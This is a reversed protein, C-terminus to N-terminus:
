SSFKGLVKAAEEIVGNHGTELIKFSPQTVKGILLNMDKAKIVKDYKGVLLTLKIHHFNILDAVDTMSFRLHRFVMWSLYVRQRKEFTNMQLDVFRLMGKDIWGTKSVFTEIAKLRQPHSIMSKFLMRFLGPYTALKYWFNIKIGDPAILLIHDIKEPFAEVCALAFKGGMSFGLLSFRDIKQQALFESVLEKWFQKELPQEGYNWESKGHFFLDFSYLTFDDFCEELKKFAQHDQGFGHFTLLINRGNGVKTFFLRTQRFDFFQTHM